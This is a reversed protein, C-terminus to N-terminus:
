HMTTGPLLVQQILIVGATVTAISFLHTFMVGEAARDPEVDYAVALSVSIVSTPMLAVLSIILISPDPIGLRKLLLALGFVAAPVALLRLAALSINWEDFKLAKFGLSYIRAGALMIGLPVTPAGLVQSIDLVLGPVHPSWGALVVAVAVVLVILAPSLLYGLMERLPRRGELIVIGVTWTLAIFALNNLFLLGAGTEPLFATALPLVMFGFNSLMAHFLYVKRQGGKIGRLKAYVLGFALGILGTALGGVPLIWNDIIGQPQLKLISYLMLAPWFLRNVLNGLDQETRDSMFGVRKALMGAAFLAMILGIRSLIFLIDDM